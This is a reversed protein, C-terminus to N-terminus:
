ISNREVLKCEVYVKFNENYNKDDFIHQIAKATM